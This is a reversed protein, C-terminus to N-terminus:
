HRRLPAKHKQSCIMLDSGSFKALSTTFTFFHNSHLLHFFAWHYATWNLAVQTLM